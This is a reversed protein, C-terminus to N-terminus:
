DQIGHNSIFPAVTPKPLSVRQAAIHSGLAGLTVVIDTRPDTLVKDLTARVGALTRDADLQLDAPAQLDFEGRNVAQMEELFLTRVSTVRESSGDAVIAVNVVPLQRAAQVAAPLTLMIALILTVIRATM